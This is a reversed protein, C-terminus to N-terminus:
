EELYAPIEIKNDAKRDTSAKHQTGAEGTFDTVEDWVYIVFFSVCYLYQLLAIETREGMPTHTDAMSMVGTRVSFM